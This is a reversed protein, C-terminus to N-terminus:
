FSLGIGGFFSENTQVQGTLSLDVNKNLELVDRTYQLGLVTGHDHSVKNGNKRLGADPAHGALLTINNKKSKKIIVPKVMKKEVVKKYRTQSRPVIKFKDGDFEQIKGDKLKRRINSDKYVKPTEEKIVEKQLKESEVICIGASNLKCEMWDKSEEALVSTCVLALLIALKKM